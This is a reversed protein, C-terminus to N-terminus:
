ATPFSCRSGSRMGKSSFLPMNSPFSKVQLCQWPKLPPSHNQPPRTRGYTILWSCCTLMFSCCGAMYVSM